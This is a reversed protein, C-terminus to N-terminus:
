PVNFFVWFVRKVSVDQCMLFVWFARKKVSLLQGKEQPMLYLLVNFTMAFSLVSGLGRPRKSLMM